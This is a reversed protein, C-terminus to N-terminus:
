EEDFAPRLRVDRLNKIMGGALCQVIGNSRITVVMMPMKSGRETVLVGEQLWASARPRSSQHNKRIDHIADWDKIERKLKKPKQALNARIDESWQISEKKKKKKSKKWDNLEKAANEISHQLSVLKEDCPNEKNLETNYAEYLEEWNQRLESEIKKKAEGLVNKRTIGKM